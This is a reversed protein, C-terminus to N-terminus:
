AIEHGVALSSRLIVENQVTHIVISVEDVEQISGSIDLAGRGVRQGLKVQLRAIEACFEPMRGASHHVGANLGAGVVDMTIHPLVEAAVLQVRLVPVRKRNGFIVFVLKASREAQRYPLVLEEIEAVHLQVADDVSRRPGVRHRGGEHALAIERLQAIGRQGTLGRRNM